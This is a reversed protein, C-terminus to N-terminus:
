RLGDNIDQMIDDINIKKDIPIHRNRLENFFQENENAEERDFKYDLTSISLTSLHKANNKQKNADHIETTDDVMLIVKLHKSALAEYEQPIEIMRGKANTEFEIAYM